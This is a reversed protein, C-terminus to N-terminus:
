INWSQPMVEKLLDKESIRRLKGYNKDNILGGVNINYHSHNYEDISLWKLGKAFEEFLVNDQPLYDYPSNINIVKWGKSKLFYYRKIERTKFQEETMSGLKVSLNHGNGNYEVYIKEEPFAIDLSCFGIPYNLIGGFLKHLYLQQRSTSVSGNQHMTERTKAKIKDNQMAWDCGYKKRNTDIAKQLIKKDSFVNASGFRKVRTEMAKQSIEENKTPNDVGYNKVFTEVARGHIEKNKMPHVVGYKEIFSKEMKAKTEKLETKSKVGYNIMNCEKAKKQQCKPCCDKQVAYRRNSRVRARWEKIIKCGCYDCSLEVKTHSGKTLDEVECDFLDGYKTFDYGKEIYHVKNSPSWKVEVIKTIIM